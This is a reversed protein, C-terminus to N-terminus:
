CRVQNATSAQHPPPPIDDEEDDAETQVQFRTAAPDVAVPPSAGRPDAERLCSVDGALLSDFGPLVGRRKDPRERPPIVVVHLPHADTVLTFAVREM